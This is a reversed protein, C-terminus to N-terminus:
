NIHPYDSNLKELQRSLFVWEGSLNDKEREHDGSISKMEHIRQNIAVIRWNIKNKRERIDNETVVGNATDLKKSLETLTKATVKVVSGETSALGYTEWGEGGKRIKQAGKCHGVYEGHRFASKSINPLNKM